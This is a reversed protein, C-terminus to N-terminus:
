TGKYNWTNDTNQTMGDPLRLRAAGKWSWKNGSKEFGDPMDTGSYSWSKGDGLPRFYVPVSVFFFIFLYLYLYLDKNSMFFTRM